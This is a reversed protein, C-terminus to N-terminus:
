QAASCIRYLPMWVHPHVALLAPAATAVTHTLGLIGGSPLSGMVPAISLLKKVFVVTFTMSLRTAGSPLTVGTYVM